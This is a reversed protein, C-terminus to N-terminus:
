IHSYNQNFFLLLFSAYPIAVLCTLLVNQSVMGGDHSVTSASSECAGIMVQFLGSIYWTHLPLSFRMSTVISHLCLQNFLDHIHFGIHHWNECNVLLGLLLVYLIQASRCGSLMDCDLNLLLLVIGHCISQNFLTKLTHVIECWTSINFRLDEYILRM